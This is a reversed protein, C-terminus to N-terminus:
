NPRGRQWQLSKPRAILRGLLWRSQSLLKKRGQSSSSRLERQLLRRSRRNRKRVVNLKSLRAASKRRGRESQPTRGLMTFSRLM